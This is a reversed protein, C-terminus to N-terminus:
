VEWQNLIQDKAMREAEEESHGKQIKIEKYQEIAKKQRDDKEKQENAVMQKAKIKNRNMMIQSPSLSKSSKGAKKESREQSKM